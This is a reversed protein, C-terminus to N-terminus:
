RDNDYVKEMPGPLAIPLEIWFVPWIGAFHHLPQTVNAHSSHHRHPRGDATEAVIISFHPAFSVNDAVLISCGSVHVKYISVRFFSNINMEIIRSMGICPLIDPLLHLMSIIPMPDFHEPQISALRFHEGHVRFVETKVGAISQGDRVYVRKIM